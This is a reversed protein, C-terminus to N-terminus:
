SIAGLSEITISWKNNSDRVARYVSQQSSINGEYYGAAILCTSASSCEPKNMTFLLGRSGDKKYIVDNDVTCNSAAVAVPKNQNLKGLLRPSPDLLKEDFKLGICYAGANSQAGSSNNHFLYKFVEAALEENVQPTKMTPKNLYSISSCATALLVVPLVCLITKYM